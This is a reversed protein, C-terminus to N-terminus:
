ATRTSRLKSVTPQPAGLQGNFAAYTELASSGGEEMCLCHNSRVARSSFFRWHRLWSRRTLCFARVKRVAAARPGSLSQKVQWREMSDPKSFVPNPPHNADLTGIHSRMGYRVDLHDGIRKCREGVNCVGAKGLLDDFPDCMVGFDIGGPPFREGSCLDLQGEIGSSPARM